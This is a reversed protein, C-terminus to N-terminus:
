SRRRDDTTPREPSAAFRPAHHQYSSTTEVGRPGFFACGSLRRCVVFDRVASLLRRVAGWQSSLVSFQSSDKRRGRTRLGSTLRSAAPLGESMGHWHTIGPEGLKWCLLVIEGEVKCPFDLLGIDLDKVQVGTADIEALADKIRQIAREREAKRRALHVVNLMTGGNLFVRHATKQLEDEVEEIVKKGRMAQKLLLELIPLLTQAEDLTFTRDAM